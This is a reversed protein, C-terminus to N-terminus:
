DGKTSMDMIIGKANGLVELFFEDYDENDYCELKVSDIADDISKERKNPPVREMFVKTLLTIIVDSQLKQMESNLHHKIALDLMDDLSM